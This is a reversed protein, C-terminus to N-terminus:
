PKFAIAYTDHWFENYSVKINIFGATLLASKINNMSINKYWEDKKLDGGDIASHPKRGIGACTIIIKGNPKLWNISRSIITDWSATHEFVECCIVIEVSEEPTFESADCVIDVLPGDYLDIGIWTAKPFHDRITGNINRSGIEIVSVQEETSFLEVFKYAGPHM